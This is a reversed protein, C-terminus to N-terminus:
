STYLLCPTAMISLVEGIRERKTAGTVNHRAPLFYVFLIESMLQVAVDSAGALQIALKEGFSGEGPDYADVYRDKLEEFTALTWVTRSPTFLSGDRELCDARVREFVAYTPALHELDHKAM